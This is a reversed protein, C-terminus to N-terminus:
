KVMNPRDVQHHFHAEHKLMSRLRSRLRSGQTRLGADEFSTDKTNVHWHQM